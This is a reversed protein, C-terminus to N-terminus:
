AALKMTETGRGAHAASVRASRPTWLPRRPAYDRAVVLLLMALATASYAGEAPLGFFPALLSLSLGTVAIAALLAILKM